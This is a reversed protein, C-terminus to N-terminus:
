KRWSSFASLFCIGAIAGYLIVMIWFAKPHEAASFSLPDNRWKTFVRGTHISIFAYAAFFGGSVILFWPSNEPQKM